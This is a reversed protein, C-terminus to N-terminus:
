VTCTVNRAVFITIMVVREFYEFDLLLVVRDRDGDILLDVEGSVSVAGIFPGPLILPSGVLPTRLSVPPVVSSVWSARRTLASGRVDKLRIIARLESLLRCRVLLASRRAWIILLSTKTPVLM